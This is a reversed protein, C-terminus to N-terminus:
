KINLAKLAAQHNWNARFIQSVNNNDKKRTWYLEDGAPTFVPLGDFGEMNSARIPQHKGATDVIYLEFNAFGNKNSTYIIYKQSPHYFPAWSMNNTRTLQKKDNGDINMTYIEAKMGDASFRRWVIKKSDPSFFPGGDYGKHTTLQKVETGDAKMIFIDMMFAPDISFTKTEAESMNQAKANYANRNSSFAIWQGDASYSAEADYGRETTLQQTGKSDKVFLDYNEDYDWSYRREKGSARFDLEDLQKHKAEADLHTSAYLLQEGNPHIWSCTTKGIGNSIMEVDGLELDMKFIQYFPNDNLRESQFILQTGDASFYGEGSRKGAFTLQNIETLFLTPAQTQTTAQENATMAPPKAATLITSKHTNQNCSILLSTSLIFLLKM